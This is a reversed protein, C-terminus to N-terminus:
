KFQSCVRSRSIKLTHFCSKEETALISHHHPITSKAFQDLNRKTRAESREQINSAWESM